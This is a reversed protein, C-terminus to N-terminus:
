WQAMEGTGGYHTQRDQLADKTRLLKNRRNSHRCLGERPWAPSPLSPVGTLLVLIGETRERVNGELNQTLMLLQFGQYDELQGTKWESKSFMVM